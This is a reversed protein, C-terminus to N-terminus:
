FKKGDPNAVASGIRTADHSDMLNQMSLAVAPGFAERLEKLRADFQTVTSGTTDQVFFDHLIFAFNYNMTADFEDGQLYPKTKEIPDVLEATLYAQPNISRVWTRWNKWFPHGVDYAVDLRWGDIGHEAGKNMPNMWRKTAAFIYQKPGPVIGTSDERFEPLTKIGFWGKYQFKTKKVTDRWSDISFWDKYVSAQQKKEVDQFPISKVGIHNFVGDFIIYMKRKHVEAILKLALLDAKTWVWTEPASFNENEIMKKDGEPDPGFTPDVHHYCLADYKHSSPSWFIPNIYIAGIGLSQLYDLKDIVGQLDGGYRRRQINYYIDKGNETEYPQLKYWDSTWPHIQFASTDNFPYAGNQDSVSPDNKPDGNNFRDPFVQYWVIGKSWPPTFDKQAFSTYATSLFVQTLFSIYKFM